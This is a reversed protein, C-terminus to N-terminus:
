LSLKEMEAVWDYVTAWSRDGAEVIGDTTSDAIHAVGGVTCSYSTPSYWTTEEEWQLNGDDDVWSTAAQTNCKDTSETMADLWAVVSAFRQGEAPIGGYGLREIVTGDAQVTVTSDIWENKFRFEM